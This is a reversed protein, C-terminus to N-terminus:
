KGVELKDLVPFGNQERVDKLLKRGWSDSKGYRLALQAGSLAEGAALRERAFETARARVDDAEVAAPMVTTMGTETGTESGTGAQVPVPPVAATDAPVAGTRGQDAGNGWPPVTDMEGLRNAHQVVALEALLVARSRDDTGVCALRLSRTTRARSLRGTRVSLRAAKRAHRERTRVIADRDDDGLGLRSLMRERLERGVRAVTGTKEHGTNKVEIGLAHHLMWLALVPGLLVRAVGELPGSLLLAAYAAFGCLLWATFRAKGPNGYRRVNARMAVGCALLAVEIVAFMLVREVDNTIELTTGFFRWSTDVSVAVGLIASFYFLFTGKPRQTM